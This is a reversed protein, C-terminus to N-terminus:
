FRSDDAPAADSDDVPQSVEVLGANINKNFEKAKEYISPDEVMGVLEVVLGHWKGKNNEEKVTTLKYIHSFSPPTFSKGKGDKLEIGNILSMWRKSKKIQTSALSLLAQGWTGNGSQFLIFHNRTDKLIDYLPAGDKDFPETGEPVDMMYVNGHRSVGPLTLTEVDAPMHDGRYGGGQSRPVWQNFRRQYACPVVLVEKFLENTITNILMGAKAGEVEEVQPSNSQLIAIFPIAFTDKDTEEMGMGSDKAMDEMMAPLGAATTKTLAKDKATVKKKPAM